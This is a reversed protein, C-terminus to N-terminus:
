YLGTQQVFELWNRTSISWNPQCFQSSLWGTSISVCQTFHSNWAMVSAVNVVLDCLCFVFQLTEQKGYEAQDISKWEGGWIRSMMDKAFLANDNFQTAM